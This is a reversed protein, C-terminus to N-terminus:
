VSWRLCRVGQGPAAASANPARKILCNSRALVNMLSSDEELFPSVENGSAVARLYAERGGNAPMPATLMAGFTESSRAHKGTLLAEIIPALFLRTCVLASAPNGPLGLICKAEIKRERMSAFWTPRGPRVNVGEVVLDAGLARVAPRVHDHPGVSAGGIIVLVDCQSLADSAAAAVADENDRVPASRETKAGWARALAAVAYSASDFIQDDRPAKGPLALEDGNAMISIIPKRAVRLLSYGAGALAVIAGADIVRADGLLIEGARFDGGRPRVFAGPKIQLATLMAERVNADEQALVADAGAPLPAGTSIRVAEGAHLARAFAHGAASEGVIRLEGPTDASRLAYGDMIAADFPPQDRRARVTEGLTRGDLDDLGIEESGLRDARALMRTLAEDVSIM